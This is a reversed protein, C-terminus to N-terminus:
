LTRWWSQSSLSAHMDSITATIASDGVIRSVRSAGVNVFMGVGHNAIVERLRTIGVVHAVITSAMNRRRPSSPMRRSSVPTTVEDNITPSLQSALIEELGELLGGKHMMGLWKCGYRWFLSLALTNRGGRFVVGTNTWETCSGLCPSGRYCKCGQWQCKSREAVRYGTSDPHVLVIPGSGPGAAVGRVPIGEPLRVCEFSPSREVEAQM